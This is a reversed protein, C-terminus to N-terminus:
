LQFKDINVLMDCIMAMDPMVSVEREIIELYERVENIIDIIDIHFNQLLRRVFPFCSVYDGVTYRIAYAVIGAIDTYSMGERVNEYDYGYCRNDKLIFNTFDVDCIAFGPCVSYFIQLFISVSDATDILKQEDDLMTLKAFVDSLLEGEIFELTLQNGDEELIDPSYGTHRMRSLVFHENKFSEASEYEKLVVKRGNEESIIMVKKKNVLDKRLAQLFNDMM